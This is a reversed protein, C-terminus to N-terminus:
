FFLVPLVLIKYPRFYGRAHFCFSMFNTSLFKPKLLTKSLRGNYVTDLLWNCKSNAWFTKLAIAVFSLLILKFFIRLEQLIQTFANNYQFQISESQEFQECASIIKLKWFQCEQLLWMKFPM